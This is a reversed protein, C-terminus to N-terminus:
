RPRRADHWQRVPAARPDHPATVAVYAYFPKQGDHTKLFEIASDAFLESSFKEGTREATLQGDSGLDRVPVKTHDSMGGFMVTKGRQFARLWSPQGNHWKGTGFTVYGNEQLHEPLLKADKLTVTDVHFWTKGSMLMARSPVCVAGSNGGFVYNGRFSFGSAALTDINPTKIHPNGHAAITDARMDDAFLFLVNPKDAAWLETSLSLLLAFFFSAIQTTRSM